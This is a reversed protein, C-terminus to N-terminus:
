RCLDGTLGGKYLNKPGVERNQHASRKSVSNFSIGDPMKNKM